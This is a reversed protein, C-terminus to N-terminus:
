HLSLLDECILKAANGDGFPNNASAMAAYARQDKLLRTVHHVISAANAGVLCATGAEIAEPRETTDRTVLVPRSFSPAEEQVGGSDTVILHARKMLYVFPLYDLPEVLHVAPRNALLARVTSQVKPNLHVPYIVEVDNGAAIEALAQCIQEIGGDLNERRHGTVLILRKAPDLFGFKAEIANRLPTDTELRNTIWHLADIVTNGTILINESKVGESLLNEAATKTPPYHRTTLQGILRRNMEEPWPSNINGTRLGAEIHGVKVKRYFAALAAAFATTTDGQVLVWDPNFEDIVRCVGEIAKATIQELSQGPTMLDLDFEPRLAFVDLVQDLM